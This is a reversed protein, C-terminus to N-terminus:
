LVEIMPKPATIVEGIKTAALVGAAHLESVLRDADKTPLAFLLGGATQPDFLLTRLNQPVTDAYRVVCEAFDRNATLGGPVFGREVCEMAGALLPVTSATIRLSVGAGMAMERGHGILGFGTIDTASHIEFRQAVESAVKNLTTMSRTAAEVWSPEAQQRKIATSIVGTGIPKTFVLADGARAAANTFVQRPDITGTV